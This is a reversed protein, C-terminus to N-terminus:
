YHLVSLEDFIDQSPHGCTQQIFFRLVNRAEPADRVESLMADLDRGESRLVDARFQMLASSIGPTFEPHFQTSVANPGYRVIQHPDHSSYALASAGPPLEVVTQMHTLHATFTQPFTNLLPDTQAEPTLTIQQNGAERGQPHYDVRGGLAYAMLQHGYCVGFLPMHIRMAERIWEAMAESWPLRETVMAWSGTIIAMRRPDPQPLPEGEFVRVVEVAGVPVQLAHCFWVPVDDHVALMEEPPTGVQLIIIPSVQM